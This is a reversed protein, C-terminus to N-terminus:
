GIMIEVQFRWKWRKKLTTFQQQIVEVISPKTSTTYEASEGTFTIESLSGPILTISQVGEGEILLHNIGLIGAHKTLSHNMLMCDYNIPTGDILTIDMKFFEGCGYMAKCQAHSNSNESVSLGMIDDKLYCMSTKFDLVASVTKRYGQDGQNGKIDLNVYILDRYEIERSVKGSLTGVENLKPYKTTGQHDTIPSQHYRKFNSTVDHAFPNFM